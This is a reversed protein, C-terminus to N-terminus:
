DMQQRQRENELMATATLRPKKNIWDQSSPASTAVEQFNAPESEDASATSILSNTSVGFDLNEPIDDIASCVLKQHEPMFNYYGNKTFKDTTWKEKGEESTFDFTKIPHRYFTTKDGDIM